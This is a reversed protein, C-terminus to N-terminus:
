CHLTRAAALGSRVAGELTAPYPGDIYDGCALLGSAINMPPRQVGPTCAFTARKEVITKLPQLDQLGLQSKGQAIVLQEISAADGQSASVVFALVGYQGSLAARDFVFQAPQQASSRLAMVPTTFLTNSPTTPPSTPQNALQSVSENALTAISTSTQANYPRAALAASYAYVTTIATHQLAETTRLWANSADSPQALTRVLRAADVPGTAIITADYKYALDGELGLLNQELLQTKSLLGLHEARQGLMVQAGQASLWQQAAQPFLAALDTRPLLMNSGAIDAATTDSAAQSPAAFLADRMVRLFVTASAHAATINLASVVLPEIMDAMVRPTISHCLQAVSYHAPCSFRARRWADAARLLSLKDKYNWGKAQLIGVAVDVGAFWPKRWDPLTLGHGGPYQLTLPMRHLAAATDVGVDRMLQLTESYAGILIHQGNDLTAESGDPLSFKLARARGGVARAAELVTAHHGLRTAEVAAALGAWGAGIILVRM